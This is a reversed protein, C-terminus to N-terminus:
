AAAAQQEDAERATRTADTWWVLNNLLDPVFADFGGKVEDWSKQGMMIPMFDSGGAQAYVLSTSM